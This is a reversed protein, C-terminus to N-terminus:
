VHKPWPTKVICCNQLMMLFHQELMTRHFAIGYLANYRSKAHEPAISVLEDGNDAYPTYVVDAKIHTANISKEGTM